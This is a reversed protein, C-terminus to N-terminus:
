QGIDKGAQKGGDASKIQREKGVGAFSGIRAAVGVRQEGNRGHHQTTNRQHAPAAAGNTGDETCQGEAGNAVKQEDKIKIGQPLRRNWPTTRSKATLM